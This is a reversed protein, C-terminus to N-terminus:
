EVVRFGFSEEDIINDPYIGIRGILRYSGTPAATPIFLEYAMDRFNNASIQGSLPNLYNLLREPILVENSNPLLVTLWYDGSVPNDTNDQILSGFYLTDGKPIEIQGHPTLTLNYAISDPSEDAGIDFGYGIPRFDGEIDEYVVADAGADICPSETSLHYDTNVPDLFLPDADIMGPGWDLTVETGLQLADQGNQVDSFDFLLIYGYTISGIVVIESGDPANNDWFISNRVAMGAFWEEEGYCYMGGATEDATNGTITNHSFYSAASSYFLSIGGGSHGAFNNAIINNAIIYESNELFIGGGAGGHGPAVNGHIINGIITPTSNKCRIGGGSLHTTNNRIINGAILPYGEYQCSIGGGYGTDSTNEAIINAIIVSAPGGHSCIGGGDRGWNRMIRNNSVYSNSGGLYIGGGHWNSLNDTIDNNIIKPSSNCYIGGGRGNPFSGSVTNRTVINNIITPSSYDVCSIGGGNVAFGGRITLGALVSTTDEGSHFIFVSGLSDGDVVTSAVVASDEPDTGMVTIAKGLFDIDYEFYTGTHVMVTDGISAGNIGGQITSSDAPVHIIRAQVTASCIILLIVTLFFAPMRMLGGRSYHDPYYNVNYWLPLPKDFM